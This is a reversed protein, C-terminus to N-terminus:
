KIKRWIKEALLGLGYGVFFNILLITIVTPLIFTFFLGKIASSALFAEGVSFIGLLLVAGLYFLVGYWGWKNRFRKM